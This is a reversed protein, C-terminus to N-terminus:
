GDRFHVIARTGRTGDTREVLKRYDNEPSEDLPPLGLNWVPLCLDVIEDDLAVVKRERGADSLGAM